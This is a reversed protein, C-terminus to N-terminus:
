QARTGGTVDSDKAKFALMAGLFTAVFGLTNGFDSITVKGLYVLFLGGLLYLMGVVGVTNTKWSKKM